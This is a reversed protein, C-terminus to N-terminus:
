RGITPTGITPVPPTKRTVVYEAGCSPCRYENGRANVPTRVLAYCDHAPPQQTTPQVRPVLGEETLDWKTEDYPPWGTTPEDKDPM